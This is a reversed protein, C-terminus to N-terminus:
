RWKVSSLLFSLSAKVGRLVQALRSQARGRPWPGMRDGAWLRWCVEEGQGVAATILFM